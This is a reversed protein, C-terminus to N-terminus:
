PNRDYLISEEPEPECNNGWRITMNSAGVTMNRNGGCPEYECNSPPPKPDYYQHSGAKAGFPASANELHKTVRTTLPCELIGSYFMEEGHRPRAGSQKPQPGPVFKSGTLNMADRNWTDIQM